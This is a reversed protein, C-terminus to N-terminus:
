FKYNKMLPIGIGNLTKHLLMWGSRRRFPLHRDYVASYEIDAVAGRNRKFQAAGSSEHLLHGNTRAIGILVSSLMRYLGLEQPLSTDYGFIPTTMVGNRCFFGLVADLRGTPKYRLAHLELLGEQWALKFFSTGFQPNHYSYKDLYLARYLDALRSMDAETLEEPGVAEYGHKDLLGYDRKLLWRAKANMWADDSPKLLYVQRSPVMRFGLKELADMMAGNTTRNLSRFILTHQPFSRLLFRVADETEEDALEPYLNTSLLWNNVQVTRNFGSGKLLWGIATLLGGLALQAPRSKLLYLEQKAYSVYHTYPSCVYSNDYETENVTVPLVNDNLQLVHLATSLNPVFTEVPQQLLPLLYRKAYGGDATDPWELQGISERDFLRLMSTM